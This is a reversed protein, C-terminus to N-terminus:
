SSVFLTRFHRHCFLHYGLFAGLLVMFPLRIYTFTSLLVHVPVGELVHMSMHILMAFGRQLLVFVKNMDGSSFDRKALVKTTYFSLLEM